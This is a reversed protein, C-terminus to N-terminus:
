QEEYDPLVLSLYNEIDLLARQAIKWLEVLKEDEINDSNLYSTVAYGLGEKDIINYIEENTHKTM